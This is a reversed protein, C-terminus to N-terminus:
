RAMAAWPIASSRSESRMSSGPLLGTAGASLRAMEELVFLQDPSRNALTSAFDLKNEYTSQFHDQAAVVYGKSALNEGLHSLLFRNGPYGHSIIVLPYPAGTRDAHCRARRQWPAHDDAHQQGHARKM